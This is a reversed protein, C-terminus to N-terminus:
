HQSSPDPGDATPRQRGKKITTGPFHGFGLVRTNVWGLVVAVFTWVDSGNDQQLLLDLGDLVFVQDLKFRDFGDHLQPFGVVLLARRDQDLDVDDRVAHGVQQRAQYDGLQLEGLNANSCIPM